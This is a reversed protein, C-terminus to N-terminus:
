AATAATGQEQYWRRSALYAIATAQESGVHMATAQGIGISELRYQRGCCRIHERPLQRCEAELAPLTLKTIEVGRRTAALMQNTDEAETHRIYRDNATTHVPNAGNAMLDLADAMVADLPQDINREETLRCAAFQADALLRDEACRLHVTVTESYCYTAQRKAITDGCLHCHGPVINENRTDRVM